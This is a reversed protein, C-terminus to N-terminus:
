GERRILVLFLIPLLFAVPSPCPLIPNKVTPAAPQPADASPVIDPPTVGQTILSVNDVWLTGVNNASDLGNFGIAIERIQNPKAFVTGADAEWDARHFEGWPIIVDAWGNVADEPSSASDLYTERTENEGTYINVDYPIGAKDARVRFSLGNASSWDQASEFSLVCTAWAGPTVDFQIKLSTSSEGGVESSPACSISSSSTDDRYANIYPTLSEFDAILSSVLPQAPNAEPQSEAQPTSVPEPAPQLPADAKWRNYFYNLMPVFEETAKQSGRESPHDDGSPYHLTNKNTTIHEIQGGSIRHHADDSTLINYFDFVAVNNLTYNNENLWDNVLWQNFARANEAYTSDSLPPATIVIFLKDPRSAFYPLIRNYVYKAGGVTLEEYTGAPDNPSGELASNPFCSKFMIIENEGGPDSLMRTYSAHQESENFLAEMYTPTNESAFWETWNPIDTRDGIADPGWGYNTDSVFYNNEGLAQGLNGYGDTLWNEGTSHHIFILKVPQTPPSTDPSQRFPSAATISLTFLILLVVGGYSMSAHSTKKVSGERKALILVSENYVTPLSFCGPSSIINDYVWNM